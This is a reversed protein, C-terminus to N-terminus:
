TRSVGFRPRSTSVAGGDAARVLHRHRDAFLDAGLFGGQAHSGDKACLYRGADALNNTSTIQKCIMAVGWLFPTSTLQGLDLHGAPVQDVFAGVGGARVLVLVTVAACM